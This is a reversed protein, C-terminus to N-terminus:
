RNIITHTHTQSHSHFFRCETAWKWNAMAWKENQYTLTFKTNNFPWCRIDHEISFSVINMVLLKLWFGFSHIFSLQRMLGALFNNSVAQWYGSCCSCCYFAVCVYFQNRRLDCIADDLSSLSFLRECLFKSKFAFLTQIATWWIGDWHIVHARNHMVEFSWARERDRQTHRM